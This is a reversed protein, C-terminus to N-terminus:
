QFVWFAVGAVLLGSILSAILPVLTGEFLGRVHSNIGTQPEVDRLRSDLGDHGQKREKSECSLRKLIEETRRDLHVHREELRTLLNLSDRVNTLTEANQALLKDYLETKAELVAVRAVVDRQDSESTM